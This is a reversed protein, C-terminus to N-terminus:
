SRCVGPGYRCRRTFPGVPSGDPVLWTWRCFSVNAHTTGVRYGQRRDDGRPPAPLRVRGFPRRRASFGQTFNSTKRGVFCQLPKRAGRAAERGVLDLLPETRHPPILDSVLRTM